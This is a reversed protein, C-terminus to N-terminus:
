TPKPSDGLHRRAERTKERREELEAKRAESVPIRAGFWSGHCVLHVVEKAIVAHKAPKTGNNHPNYELWQSAHTVPKRQKFELGDVTKHERERKPQKLFEKVAKQISIPPRDGDESCFHDEMVKKVVGEKQEREVEIVKFTMGEPIKIYLM